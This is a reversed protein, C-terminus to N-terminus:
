SAAHEAQAIEALWVRAKELEAWPVDGLPFHIGLVVTIVANVHTLRKRQDADIGRARWEAVMADRLEGLCVTAASLAHDNRAPREQLVQDIHGLAEVAPDTAM